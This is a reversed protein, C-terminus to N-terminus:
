DSTEEIKNNIKQVIQAAKIYREEDGMLEATEMVLNWYRRRVRLRNRRTAVEESYQRPRGATPQGEKTRSVRKSIREIDDETYLVIKTKGYNIIITPHLEEDPSDYYDRLTHQSIGILRAAQEGTYHGEGYQDILRRKWHTGSSQYVSQEEQDNHM